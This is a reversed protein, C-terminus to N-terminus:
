FLNLQETQKAQLETECKRQKRTEVDKTTQRAALVIQELADVVHSYGHNVMKERAFEYGTMGRPREDSFMYEEVLNLLYESESTWIPLNTTKHVAKIILNEADQATM